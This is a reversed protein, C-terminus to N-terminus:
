DKNVVKKTVVYTGNINTKSANFAQNLLADKQQISEMIEKRLNNKYRTHFISVFVHVYGM